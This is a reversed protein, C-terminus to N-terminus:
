ASLPPFLAIKESKVQQSVVSFQPDERTGLASIAPSWRARSLRLRWACLQYLYVFYNKADSKFKTRLTRPNASAQQGSLSRSIARTGPRACGNPSLRRDHKSHYRQRHACRAIEISQHHRFRCSVTALPPHLPVESAKTCGTSDSNAASTRGASLSSTLATRPM